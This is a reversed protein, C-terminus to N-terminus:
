LRAGSGSTPREFRGPRAMVRKSDVLSNLKGERWCSSPFVLSEVREVARRQSDPMLHTYVELTTQLDAHGLQAQAVKLPGGAESLLTAHLHRLTHWGVRPISARDCAPYIIRRLVNNRALATGTQSPFVLEDAKVRGTRSRHNFLATAVSRATQRRELTKQGYATLILFRGM